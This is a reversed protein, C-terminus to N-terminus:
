VSELLETKFRQLLEEKRLTYTSIESEYLGNGPVMLDRPLSQMDVPYFKGTSQDFLINKFQLDQHYIGLDEMKKLVGKLEDFAGQPLSNPTVSELTVGPLKGMKIYGHGNELIPKAFANGYYTNLCDAEQQIYDPIKNGSVEGRFLKYVSKGDRSAYVVGEGGEGIKPGLDVKGGGLGRSFPIVNWGNGAPNRQIYIRHSPNGDHIYRGNGDQGSLAVKGRLKVYEKGDLRYIGRDATDPLGQPSNILYRDPVRSGRGIGPIGAKRQGIGFSNMSDSPTMLKSEPRPLPQRQAAMAQRQASRSYKTAGLLRKMSGSFLPLVGSLPDFFMALPNLPRPTRLPRQGYNMQRLDKFYREKDAEYISSFRDVRDQPNIRLPDQLGPLERLASLLAKRDSHPTRGGYYDLMEPSLNGPDSLSNVTHNRFIRGDPANPTYLKYNPNHAGPTRADVVFLGPLSQSAIKARYISAPQGSNLKEFEGKIVLYEEPTIDGALKARYSDAVVRESYAADIQSNVTDRPGARRIQDSYSKEYNSLNNNMLKAIRLGVPNYKGNNPVGADLYLKNAEVDSSPPPTSIKQNMWSVDDETTSRFTAKTALHHRTRYDYMVVDTLTREGNGDGLDVMITDPDISQTGSASGPRQINDKIAERTYDNYSKDIRTRLGYERLEARENLSQYKKWEDPTARRQASPVATELMQKYDRDELTGLQERYSAGTVPSVNARTTLSTGWSAATAALRQVGDRENPELQLLIRNRSADNNLWENVTQNLEARNGFEYFDLTGAKSSPSYLVIHDRGTKPDHGEFVLMDNSNLTMETSSDGNRVEINLSVQEMKVGTWQGSGAEPNRVQQILSYGNDSLHGQLANARADLQLKADQREIGANRVRPEHFNQDLVKIYSQSVDVNSILENLQEDTLIPSEGSTTELVHQVGSETIDHPGKEILETLSTTREITGSSTALTSKVHMQSPDADIGFQSRMYEIGENRAHAEPSTLNEQQWAWDNEANVLTDLDNFYGRQDTRSATKLWAAGEGTVRQALTADNGLLSDLRPNINLRGPLWKLVSNMQVQADRPLLESDENSLELEVNSAAWSIRERQHQILSGTRNEFVNSTIEDIKFQVPDPNYFEFDNWTGTLATKGFGVLEEATKHNKLRAQLSEQLDYLSNFKEIPYGPLVLIASGGARLRAGADPGEDNDDNYAHEASVADQRIPFETIVFAGPVEMFTDPRSPYAVSLKSVQSTEDVTRIHSRRESTVPYARIRQIRQKDATTLTGRQEGLAARKGLDDNIAGAIRSKRSRLERPDASKWYRDFQGMYTNKLISFKDAADEDGASVTPLPFRPLRGILSQIKQNSQRVDGIEKAEERIGQERGVAGRKDRRFAEEASDCSLGATQSRRAQMTQSTEAQPSFSTSPSSSPASCTGQSASHHKAQVPVKNPQPQGQPAPYRPPVFFHGAQFPRVPQM